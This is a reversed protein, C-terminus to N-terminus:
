SASAGRRIAGNADTKDTVWTAEAEAEAEATEATEAAKSLRTISVKQRNVLNLLRQWSM